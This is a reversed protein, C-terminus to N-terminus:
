QYEEVDEATMSLGRFSTGKFVRKRLCPLANFIPLALIESSEKNQNIYGYLPTELTFLYILPEAKGSELFTKVLENAKNYDSNSPKILQEILSFLAVTQKSRTEDTWLNFPLRDSRRQLPNDDHPYVNDAHYQRIDIFRQVQGSLNKQNNDEM